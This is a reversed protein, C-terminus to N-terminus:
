GKPRRFILTAQKSKRAQFDLGFSNSVREWGKWSLTNIVGMINEGQEWNPLEQGNVYRPRGLFNNGEYDVVIHLYDCNQM